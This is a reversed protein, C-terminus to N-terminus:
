AAGYYQVRRSRNVYHGWTGDPEPAEPDFPDPDSLVIMLKDLSAHAPKWDRIIARLAALDTASISSGYTLGPTGFEIYPDGYFDTAWPIGDTSYIIVWFRSWADPPSEPPWDWAWTGTDWSYSQTGDAEITYWNGRVDVTRVRVPVNLYARIQRLLAFPNGRTRHGQPYRWGVLRRAFAAGGENVGRLMKRDRAILALAEPPAGEAEPFRARVGQYARETFADLLVGLAYNHLFGESEQGQVPEAGGGLWSPVLWRFIRRFREAM